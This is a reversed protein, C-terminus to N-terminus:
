KHSAESLMMASNFSSRGCIVTWTIGFRRTISGGGLSNSFVADVIPGDNDVSGRVAVEGFENLYANRVNRLEDYTPVRGLADLFLGRM